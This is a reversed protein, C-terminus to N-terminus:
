NRGPQECHQNKDDHHFGIRALVSCLPSKWVPWPLSGKGVSYGVSDVATFHGFRKTFTEWSIMIELSM